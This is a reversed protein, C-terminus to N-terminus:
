KCRYLRWVTLISQEVTYPSLPAFMDESVGGMVLMGDKSKLSTIDKISKEAWKNFPLIDTFNPSKSNAKLGIINAARSLMVAAEQRTIGANPDFKGDGRGDVIGLVNASLVDIDNTDKFIDKTSLGLKKLLQKSNDVGNKQCLMRMILKCFEKRSIEGRYGEQLSAPVLEELIANKVEEKAWPSPTDEDSAFPVSLIKHNMAFLEPSIDFYRYGYPPVTMYSGMEYKNNSDWSPDLIIWRGDVFAEVFAHNSKTANKYESSFPNGDTGSGLAYAEVVIAPIKQAHLLAKLIESYGSCVGRKNEIVKSATYKVPQVRGYYEDLDYYINETVWEYILWTKKYDDEENKVISDSLTQVESEVSSICGLPNLWGDSLKLNNEMVPSEVFSFSNQFDRKVIIERTTYGYYYGTGKVGFYLQVSINGGVNPITATASFEKGSSAYFKVRTNSDWSFQIWGGEMNKYILKGKVYLKNGEISLDIYNDENFSTILNDSGHVDFCPLIFLLLTFLTVLARKVAKM